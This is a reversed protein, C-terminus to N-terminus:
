HTSDETVQMLASSRSRYNKFVYENSLKLNPIIMSVTMYEGEQALIDRLMNNKCTASYCKQSNM